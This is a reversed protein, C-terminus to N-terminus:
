AKCKLEKVTTVLRIPDDIVGILDVDVVSRWKMKATSKCTVRKNVSKSRGAFLTRKEPDGANLWGIGGTHQLWIRVSAKQTVPLKTNKTREWWGHASAQGGTVHVWDGATAFGGWVIRPDAVVPLAANDPTDVVQTLTNEEVEYSTPVKAGNADFAWPEDITAVATMYDGKDVLVAIKDDELPLLTVEDGFTYTFSSTGTQQSVTQFQVSGDALPQVASDSLGAGPHVVTGDAAVTAEDVSTAEVPLTLPVSTGDPAQMAVERTTGTLPVSIEAETQFTATGGGITAAALGVTHPTVAAIAAATADAEDQATPGPDAAAPGTTTVLAAVMGIAVISTAAKTSRSLM